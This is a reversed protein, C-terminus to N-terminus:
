ARSRPDRTDSRTPKAALTIVIVTPAVTPMRAPKRPRIVSTSSIRTVSKKRTIGHSASAITRAAIKPCFMQTMMAIMPKVEHGLM